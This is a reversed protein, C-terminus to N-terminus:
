ASAESAPRKRGTLKEFQDWSLRRGTTTPQRVEGEVPEPTYASTKFRRPERFPVKMDSARWAARASVTLRAIENRMMRMRDLTATDNNRRHYAARIQYMAGLLAASIWAKSNAATTFSPGCPLDNLPSGKIFAMEALNQFEVTPRDKDKAWKETATRLEIQEFDSVGILGAAINKDINNM